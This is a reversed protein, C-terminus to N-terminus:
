NEKKSGIKRLYKERTELMMKKSMYVYIFRPVVQYILHQLSHALCGNTESELGVTNLASKAYTDADPAFFSPRKIKSMNTAVYYPYVCQFFVDSNSYESKLSATFHSVFSKTAAYVSLYPCPRYASASAVNIIAGMKKAIMQPLIIMTMETVSFCNIKLMRDWTKEAEPHDLLTEPYENSAGVNNVYYSM